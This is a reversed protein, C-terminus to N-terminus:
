VYRPWEAMKYMFATEFKVV